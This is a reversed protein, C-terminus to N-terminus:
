QRSRPVTGSARPAARSPAQPDLPRRLPRLLLPRYGAAASARLARQLPAAGRAAAHRSSPPARSGARAVPLPRRPKAAPATRAAPRLRRRVTHPRRPEAAM